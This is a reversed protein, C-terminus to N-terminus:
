TRKGKLGVVNFRPSCSYGFYLTANSSSCRAAGPKEGKLRERLVSFAVHVPGHQGKKCAIGVSFNKKKKFIFEEEWWVTGTKTNVCVPKPSISTTKISAREPDITMTVTALFKKGGPPGGTDSADGTVRTGTGTDGSGVNSSMPM